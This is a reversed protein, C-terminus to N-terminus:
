LGIDHLEGALDSDRLNEALESFNSISLRLDLPNQKVSAPQLECESTPIALFRLVRSQEFGTLLEEYDVELYDQNTRHLAAALRGYFLENQHIHDLLSSHEITVRPRPLILEQQRYVEWQDTQQAIIESVYTKVRNRRRLVIKKVNADELAHALVQENQGRTWKFGVCAHDFHKTWVRDLFAIPDRDRQQLSIRGLTDNDFDLATFIGQPNFLEHHCLIEPHSNLLTCLLNSGTRPAALIVFRTM